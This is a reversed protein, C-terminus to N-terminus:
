LLRYRASRLNYTGPGGAPVALDSIEFLGLGAPIFQEKKLEARTYFNASQNLAMGQLMMAGDTNNAPASAKALMAYQPNGSATTYVQAAADLLIAGNVNSGASFIQVATNAVMATNVTYFGTHADPRELAALTAADLGVTGTISAAGRDYRIESGLATEFQVTQALPSVIDVRDFQITRFQEAFGAEVELREAIERGQFYFDINVPSTTLLLRFFDGEGNIQLRQGATFTTKM